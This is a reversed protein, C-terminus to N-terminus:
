EEEYVMYTVEPDKVPLNEYDSESLFIPTIKTIKNKVNEIQDSTLMYEKIIDVFLGGVRESTNAGDHIEDRILKAKSLLNDIQGM